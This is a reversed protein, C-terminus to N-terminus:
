NIAQYCECASAQLKQHDLISIQGRMYDIIGRDRLEQAICTVSPRHVGLFQAIQEQTLRFKATEVTSIRDNLMLLWTSFRENIRHHHNCVARQSIQRVFANVYEMLSTQLLGDQIFEKKIADATIRYANGAVSVQTWANNPHCGFVLSLNSVGESGIMATELTRGDELINLQSFVATEPFYVYEHQDNPQYVIDGTNFAVKQLKSISKSTIGDWKESFIQRVFINKASITESYTIKGSDLRSDKLTLLDFSSKVNIDLAKNKKAEITKTGYSYLM